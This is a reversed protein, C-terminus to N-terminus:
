MLLQLTVNQDKRNSGQSEFRAIRIRPRSVLLGPSRRPKKKATRCRNADTATSPATRADARMGRRALSRASRHQAQTREHTNGFLALGFAADAHQFYQEGPPASRCCAIRGVCHFDNKRPTRPLPPTTRRELDHVNRHASGIIYFIRIEHRKECKEDGSAQDVFTAYPEAASRPTTMTAVGFPPFLAFLSRAPRGAREARRTATTRAERM